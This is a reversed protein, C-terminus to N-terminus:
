HNKYKRDKWTAYEGNLYEKINRIEIKIESLDTGITDLRQSLTEEVLDSYQKVLDLGSQQSQYTSQKIEANRKRRYIVLEILGTLTGGTILGIIIESIPM